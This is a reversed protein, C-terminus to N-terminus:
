HSTTNCDTEPQVQYVSHCLITSEVCFTSRPAIDRPSRAGKLTIINQTAEPTRVTTRPSLGQITSLYVGRAPMNSCAM